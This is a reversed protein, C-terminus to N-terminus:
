ENFIPPRMTTWKVEQEYSNALQLVSLDQTAPGMIQMGMPLGQRNFGVPINVIPCGSLSGPVTIEMWRHYTDM